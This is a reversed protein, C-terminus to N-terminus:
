CRKPDMAHLKGIAAPETGECSFLERVDHQVGAIDLRVLKADQEDITTRDIHPVGELEDSSIAVVPLPTGYIARDIAVVIRRMGAPTAHAGKRLVVMIAVLVDDNLATEGDCSSARRWNRPKALSLSSPRQVTV